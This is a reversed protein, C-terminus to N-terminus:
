FSGQGYVAHSGTGIQRQIGVGPLAHGISAFRPPSLSASFSPLPLQTGDGADLLVGSRLLPGTPAAQQSSRSKIGFGQSCHMVATVHTSAPHFCGLALVERKQPQQEPFLGLRCSRRRPTCMCLYAKAFDSGLGWSQPLDWRLYLFSQVHLLALWRCSHLASLPPLPSCYSNYIKNFSFKCFM